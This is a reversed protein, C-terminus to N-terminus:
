STKTLPSCLDRNGLRPDGIRRPLLDPPSGQCLPPSASIFAATREIHIYCRGVVTACVSDASSGPNVTVTLSVRLGIYSNNLLSTFSSINLFMCQLRTALQPRVALFRFRSEIRHMISTRGRLHIAPPENDAVISKM